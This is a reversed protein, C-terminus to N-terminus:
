DKRFRLDFHEKRQELAKLDTLEKVHVPVVSVYGNKLLAIDSAEHEDHDEQTGGMWYYERGEPHLGKLPNEKYYSMGQRAFRCGKHTKEADAPFNVNLFSGPTLPHELIYEVLPFIQSEFIEYKPNLYEECSFAIGPINRMVGEIVGGVTGSYLLNRGANSGKNIGSVILDPTKKLLVRTAMRVCDAPTGTVQWTPTKDDWEFRDIHIPTRLTVGLGVGSQETAPAVIYLDCLDKLAKWLHKLGIARIGDDNTILITPKQM